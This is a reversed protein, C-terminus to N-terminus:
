LKPEEDKIKEIMNDIENNEDINVLIVMNKKSKRNKASQTAYRLHIARRMNDANLKLDNLNRKINAINKVTKNNTNKILFVTKYNELTEVINHKLQAFLEDIDREFSESVSISDM